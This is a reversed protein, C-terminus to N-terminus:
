DGSPKELQELNTLFLTLMRNFDAVDQSSFGSLLRAQRELAVELIEAHMARGRETLIWGRRREDNAHTGVGEALGKKELRALCRSVAAKDIGITQSAQSVSAGPQRTLMVLMRWDTAGLGYEKQYLRSAARTFRNAAFTLLVTPSRSFSLTQAEPGGDGVNILFLSDELERRTLTTDDKKM